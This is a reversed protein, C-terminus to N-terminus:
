EPFGCEESPIPYFRLQALKLGSNDYEWLYQLERSFLFEREWKTGTWYYYYLLYKSVDQFNQKGHGRTLDLVFLEGGATMYPCIDKTPDLPDVVCTTMKASKGPKGLARAWVSYKPCGNDGPDPNPLAFLAPGDTANADLVQYKDPDVEHCADGVGSECLLIRSKGQLNVFIRHGKNNDMPASKDKVGIINLNYHPGSPAGNGQGALAMSSFAVGVLTVVLLVVIIKKV